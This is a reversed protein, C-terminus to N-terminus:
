AALCRQAHGASTLGQMRRERQRTLRHAHECRNKLSRRQRHAVGPLIERKAAGERQLKETMIVRPVYPLGKLLQRCLTQAAQTNRRSQVLIDLVHDDHDVARWLAHRTGNSTM